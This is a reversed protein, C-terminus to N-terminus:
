YHTSWDSHSHMVRRYPKTHVAGVAVCGVRWGCLCSCLICDIILMCPVDCEKNKQCRLGWDVCPSGRLVASDAARRGARTPTCSLSWPPRRAQTHWACCVCPDGGGERLMWFTVDAKIVAWFVNSVYLPFFPLRDKFSAASSSFLHSHPAEEPADVPPRKTAALKSFLIGATGTYIHLIGAASQGKM